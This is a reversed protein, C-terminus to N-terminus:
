SGTQTWQAVIGSFSFPSGSVIMNTTLFVNGKAGSQMPLSMSLTGSSFTMSGCVFNAPLSGSPATQVLTASYCNLGANSFMLSAEYAFNNTTQIVTTATLSFSQSYPFSRVQPSAARFINVSVKELRVPLESASVDTAPEIVFRLHGRPTLVPDGLQVLQFNNVSNWTLTSEVGVGSDHGLDDWAKVLNNDDIDRVVPKLSRGIEGMWQGSAEKDLTLVREGSTLTKVTAWNADIRVLGTGLSPAAQAPAIGIGLFAILGLVPILSRCRLPKM